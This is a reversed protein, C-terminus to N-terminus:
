RIYKARGIVGPFYKNIIIILVILIGWMISRAVSGNMSTYHGLVLLIIQHFALVIYSNIGIYIVAKKMLNVPTNVLRSFIAAISCMMLAGSIGAIYTIPGSLKNAGFEPTPSNFYYSCTLVFLVFCCIILNVFSSKDFYYILKPGIINGIGYFLVATFIFCLNYNNAFKLYYSIYGIIASIFILILVNIKSSDAVKCIMYYLVETGFLIPIFWLAYGGWGNVLTKMVYDLYNPQIIHLGLVILSFIIFPKILSNYRRKILCKLTPYKSYKFLIGSCVFFFPMRFSSFFTGLYPISALGAHGYVVLIISIGKAIDIWEIRKNLM